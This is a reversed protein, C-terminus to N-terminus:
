IIALEATGIATPDQGYIQERPRSIVLGGTHTLTGLM